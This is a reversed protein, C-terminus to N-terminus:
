QARAARRGEKEDRPETRAPPPPIGWSMMILERETNATRVVPTAYDPFVGPM